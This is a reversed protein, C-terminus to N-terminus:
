VLDGKDFNYISYIILSSKIFPKTAFNNLYEVKPSERDNPGDELERPRTHHNKLGGFLTLSCFLINCSM